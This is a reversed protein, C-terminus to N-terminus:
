FEHAVKFKLIYWIIREKCYNYQRFYFFLNQAQSKKFFTKMEYNTVITVLGVTFFRIHKSPM